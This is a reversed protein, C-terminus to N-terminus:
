IVPKVTPPPSGPEPPPSAVVAVMATPVVEVPAGPVSAVTVLTPVEDAAMKLKVM